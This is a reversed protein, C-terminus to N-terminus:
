LSSMSSWYNLSTSTTLYFKNSLCFPPSFSWRSSSNAIYLYSISEISLAGLWCIDLRPSAPPLSCWIIWIPPFATPASWLVLKVSSTISLCCIKLSAEEKRIPSCVSFIWGVTKQAFDLDERLEEMSLQLMPPGEVELWWLRPMSYVVNISQGLVMKILLLTDFPGMCFRPYCFCFPGFAASICLYFKLMSDTWCVIRFCAEYPRPSNLVAPSLDAAPPVEFFLWAADSCLSSSLSLLWISFPNNKWSGVSSHSTSSITLPYILVSLRFWRPWFWWKYYLLDLPLM